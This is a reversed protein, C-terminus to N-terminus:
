RTLHSRTTSPGGIRVATLRNSGTRLPADGRHRLHGRIRLFPDAAGEHFHHPPLPAAEMRARSLSARRVSRAEPVRDSAAMDRDPSSTSAQRTRQAVARSRRVDRDLGGGFSVGLRGPKAIEHRCRGPVAADQLPAGAGRLREQRRRAIDPHQVAVEMMAVHEVEAIAAPQGDVGLAQDALSAEVARVEEAMRIKGIAHWRDRRERVDESLPSAGM